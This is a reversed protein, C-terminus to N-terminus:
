GNSNEKSFLFPYQRKMISERTGDGPLTVLDKVRNILDANVYWDWKRGSLGNLVWHGHILNLFGIKEGVGEFDNLNFPTTWSGARQCISIIRNVAEEMEVEGFRSRLDYPEFLSM